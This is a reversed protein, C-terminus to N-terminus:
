IKSFKKVATGNETVIEIYYIGKNMEAVSVEQKIEAKDFHQLLITKGVIDYIRVDTIKSGDASEVFLSTSAPNPFLNVMINNEIEEVGSPCATQNIGHATFYTTFDNVSSIPWMDQEIINHNPAILIYTPFAGIGYTATVADGGGQTGSVVPYGANGGLYTNEFSICQANNDGNDISIFYVPGSNCGYNQYTTKYYPSTQQCPVCACFFFDICVYQGANLINFLNHSNGDIDTVTFDVAVTLSTQANATGLAFCLSLITCLKKM